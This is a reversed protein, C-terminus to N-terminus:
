IDHYLVKSTGPFSPHIDFSLSCLPWRGLPSFYSKQTPSRVTIFMPDATEFPNLWQKCCSYLPRSFAIDDHGPFLPTCHLEFDGNSYWLM